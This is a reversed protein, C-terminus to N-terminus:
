AKFLEHTSLTKFLFFYSFSDNTVGKNKTEELKHGLHGGYEGVRMKARPSFPFRLYEFIGSTNKIESSVQQIRHWLKERTFFPTSM